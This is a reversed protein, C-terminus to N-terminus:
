ELTADLWRAFDEMIMDRNLGNLGEHRTDDYIRSVLNSFGMRRLKGEFDRVAKGGETAPNDRGGALSIPLDRAIGSFNREDIGHFIFGFLDLWLSVSIDGGCLPDDIYKRVEQPDGSLWDFPTTSEPVEKGWTRDKGWAHFTFRPLLRSPVDSGLRLREWLLAAQAIRGTMGGAFNANWIAAAHIGNPHRQLHNLAILGGMSHGFVVIPLGPHETRILDHIAAVDAIVKNRGQPTGFRGPPADPAITLGHGRHDHAYTHFSRAALFDALREYRAAHEALGHSVQVIARARGEALRTYLNITAGTPSVIKRRTDFPM